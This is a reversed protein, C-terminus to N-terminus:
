YSAGYEKGTNTTGKVENKLFIHHDDKQRRPLNMNIRWTDGKLTEKGVNTNFWGTTM